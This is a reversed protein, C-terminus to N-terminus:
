YDDQYVKVMANKIHYTKALLITGIHNQWLDLKAKGTKDAIQVTQLQRGDDLCKVEAVNTVKATVAVRQYPTQDNLAALDIDIIKQTSAESLVPEPLELKFNKESGEIVTKDGIVIELSKDGSYAEQVRFDKIKVPGKNMFFDELKRRKVDSFGVLCMKGSDDAISHVKKLLFRHSLWKYRRKIEM